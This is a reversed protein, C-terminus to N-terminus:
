LRPIHEGFNRRAQLTFKNTDLNLNLTKNLMTFDSKELRAICETLIRQAQDPELLIEGELRLEFYSEFFDVQWAKVDLYTSKNKALVNWIRSISPANHAQHLNKALDALHEEELKIDAIKKEAKSLTNQIEEALKTQERYLNTEKIDLTQLTQRLTFTTAALFLGGALFIIWLWPEARLL